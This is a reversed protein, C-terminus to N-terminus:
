KDLIRPEKEQNQRCKNSSNSIAPIVSLYQAEESVGGVEHGELM